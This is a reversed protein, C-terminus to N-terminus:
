NYFSVVVNGQISFGVHVYIHKLETSEHSIRNHRQSLTAGNWSFIIVGVYTTFKVIVNIEM